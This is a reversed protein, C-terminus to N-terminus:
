SVHPVLSRCSWQQLTDDAPYAKAYHSIGGEGRLLLDLNWDTFPQRSLDGSQVASRLPDAKDGLSQLFHDIGSLTAGSLPPCCKKPDAVLRFAIDVMTQSNAVPDFRRIAEQRAAAGIRKRLAEDVSLRRLIASFSDIDQAVFGTIGDEIWGIAATGTLLVPPLGAWMAEQLAKESTAYSGQALPYAFIDAHALAASINEVHGHFTVLNAVGLAQLRDQLAQTCAPSSDGYLDFQVKCGKLASVIEAFAPHLKNPMLSGLYAIRLGEHPQPEFGDLRSMNALSPVHSVDKHALPAAGYGMPASLVWADPLAVLEPFLIHPPTDGAIASRIVLRASPLPRRLLALLRPHNWYSVEVVDAAAIEADVRINGLAPIVTVGQLRAMAVLPASIPTDLVIARREITRNALRDQRAIEIIAREPGGGIWRPIIHLIKM